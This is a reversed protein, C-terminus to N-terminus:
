LKITLIKASLYFCHVLVWIMTEMPVERRGHNGKM